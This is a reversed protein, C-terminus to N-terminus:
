GNWLASALLYLACLSLVVPLGVDLILWRWYIRNNIHDYRGEIELSNENVAKYDKNLFIKEEKDTAVVIYKQMKKGQKRYDYKLYMERCRPLFASLHYLILIFLSWDIFGNNINDIVLGFPNFEEISADSLKYFLIISVVILLNRKVRQVEDSFNLEKFEKALWRNGREQAENIKEIIKEKEKRKQVNEPLNYRYDNQLAQARQKAEAYKKEDCLLFYKKNKYEDHSFSDSRAEEPFFIIDGASIRINEPLKHEMVHQRRAAISWDKWKKVTNEIEGSQESMLEQVHMLPIDRSEKVSEDWYM